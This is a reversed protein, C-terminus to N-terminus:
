TGHSSEPSLAALRLAENERLLENIRGGFMANERELDAIRAARERLADVVIEDVQEGGLGLRYEQVVAQLRDCMEAYRERMAEVNAALKGIDRTNPCDVAKAIRAVAEDNAAIRATLTAREALLANLSREVEEAVEDCCCAFGNVTQTADAHDRLRKAADAAIERLRADSLSPNAM